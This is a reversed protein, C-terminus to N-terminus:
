IRHGNRDTPVSFWLLLLFIFNKWNMPLAESVQRCFHIGSISEMPLSFFFIIIIIPLIRDIRFIEEIRFNREVTESMKRQDIKPAVNVGM